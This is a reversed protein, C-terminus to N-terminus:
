VPSACFAPVTLAACLHWNVDSGRWFHFNGFIHELFQLYGYLSLNPPLFGSKLGNLDISLHIPLSTTNLPVFQGPCMERPVTMLKGLVGM